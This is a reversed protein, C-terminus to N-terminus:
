WEFGNPKRATTDTDNLGEQKSGSQSESKNFSFIDGSENCAISVM